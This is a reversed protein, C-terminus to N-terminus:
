MPVSTFGNRTPAIGLPVVKADAGAHDRDTIPRDRTATTPDPTDPLAGSAALPQEHQSPRLVVIEGPANKLLWAVEDLEFGAGGRNAAAIVVRDFGANALTERLAHRYTRGRAIRAEVPVGFATARQEILEQLPIAMASQRPLPADLPLRMPVRALLVPVLTADDARALRLAADLGRRSLRPAVFPFAIRRADAGQSVLSPRRLNRRHHVGLGVLIAVLVAIVGVLLGTM